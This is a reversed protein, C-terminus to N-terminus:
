NREAGAAPRRGYRPCAELHEGEMPCGCARRGPTWVPDGPRRAPPTQLAQVVAAPLPPADALLDGLATLEPALVPLPVVGPRRETLAVLEATITGDHWDEPWWFGADLGAARLGEIRELQHMYVDGDSGKLERLLYGGPGWIALDPWGLSSGVSIGEKHFHLGLRKIEAKCKDVLGGSADEEMPPWQSATEWKPRLRLRVIHAPVYRPGDPKKGTVSQRRRM